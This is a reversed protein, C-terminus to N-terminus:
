LKVLKYNIYHLIKNIVLLHPLGISHNNKILNIKYHILKLQSNEKRNKFYREIHYAANLFGDYMTKHNISMNRAHTRYIALALRTQSVSQTLTFLKVWFVWDEHNPLTEDFYYSEDKILSKRFLVCHCPISLKNEWNLVLEDLYFKDSYPFPSLYQNGYRKNIIDFMIFDSVDIDSNTIEINNLQLNLKDKDIIDDCDLFQIFEGKIIRLGANRASSLGGNEKKLYMFRNDKKCWKLAIEETHDQSGDNIVICEWNIHTQDLVSQLCDELYVAQNYCPIIISVLDHM